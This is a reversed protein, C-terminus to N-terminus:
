TGGVKKKKIEILLDVLSADLFTGSEMKMVFYADEDKLKIIEEKSLSLARGIEEVTKVTNEAHVREDESGMIIDVLAGLQRTNDNSKTM